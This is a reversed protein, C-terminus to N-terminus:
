KFKELDKDTFIKYDINKKDYESRAFIALSKQPWGRSYNGFIKVGADQKFGLTGDPEYFEIHIPKEWDEWFNAGFYPFNWDANDGM